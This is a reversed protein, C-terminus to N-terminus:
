RPVDGLIGSHWTALKGANQSAWASRGVSSQPDDYCLRSTRLALKSAWVVYAPDVRRAPSRDVFTPQSWGGSAAFYAAILQARKDAPELARWVAVAKTPFMRDSFIVHFSAGAKLVRRVDAFIEVPRTMYQVSVAVYAADFRGEDFPM